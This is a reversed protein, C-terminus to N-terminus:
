EDDLDVVIKIRELEKALQAAKDCDFVAGKNTTCVYTAQYRNLLLKAEAEQKPTYELPVGAVESRIHIQM